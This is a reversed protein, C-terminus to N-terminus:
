VEESNSVSAILAIASTTRRSVNARNADRELASASRAKEVMFQMLSSSRADM